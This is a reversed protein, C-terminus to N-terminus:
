IKELKYVSDSIKITKVKIKKKNLKNLRLIIDTIEKKKLNIFKRLAAKQGFIHKEPLYKRLFTKLVIKNKVFSLIKFIFNRVFIYIKILQNKNKKRYEISSDEELKIKKILQIFKKYFIKKEDNNYIFNSIDQAKYEFKQNNTNSFFSICKKENTFNLNSFKFKKFKKHKSISKLSYLIIKKKLIAAEIASTCGCHLYYNCAIIWPTITFRYVLKLNKPVKGLVKILEKENEVPHKRFIFNKNPNAVALKKIFKLFDLYNERELINYKMFKNTSREDVNYKKAWSRTISVFDETRDDVHLNGPIFVFNKYKKKIINVEKDFIKRNKKKLLDFKPHGLTEMKVKKNNIKPLMTFDEKGWLILTNILNFFFKSYLTKKTFIDHLSIPGEEDLVMIHNSKDINRRKLREHFTHKDLWICNKFNKIKNNLHRQGGIIVKFNTYKLIQYALFIKPIKERLDVEIPIFIIM